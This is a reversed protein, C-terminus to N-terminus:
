ISTKELIEPKKEESITINGYHRIELSSLNIQTEPNILPGIRNFFRRLCDPGNEHGSPLFVRRSGIEYPFCFIVLDGDLGPKIISSFCLSDNTNLSM